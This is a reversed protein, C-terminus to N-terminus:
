DTPHLPGGAAAAGGKVPDDEDVGTAVDEAQDAFEQLALAIESAEVMDIHGIGDADPALSARIKATLAKGADLAEDIEDCTKLIHAADGTEVAVKVVRALMPFFAAVAPALNVIKAYIERLYNRM